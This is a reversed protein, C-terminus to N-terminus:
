LIGIGWHLVVYVIILAFGTWLFIPLLPKKDKTVAYNTKGEEYVIIDYFEQPLCDEISQHSKYSAIVIDFALLHLFLLRLVSCPNLSSQASDVIVCKPPTKNYDAHNLVNMLKDSDLVAYCFIEHATLDAIAPIQNKLDVLRKIATYLIMRKTSKLQRIEPVQGALIVDIEGDESIINKPVQALHEPSKKLIHFGSYMLMNNSNLRFDERVKAIFSQSNGNLKTIFVPVQINEGYNEFGDRLVAKEFLLSEFAEKNSSIRVSSPLATELIM